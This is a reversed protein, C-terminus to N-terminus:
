VSYPLPLLKLTVGGPSKWHVDETRASAIQIVALVDYGGDPSAAANVIVGNAQGQADGSSLEEGSQPSTESLINAIYMRRKLTGLHQTRAIVEQGPYCGKNFSVAGIAEMNLMQPVFQEQTAPTIVPIGNRINLWDWCQYGAPTASQRLKGWLVPAQEATCVIQFRNPSLRILTASPTHAAGLVQQPIASFNQKALTEANNGALGLSILTDSANSIKVKSRLVFKALRRHISERLNDHLQAFYGEASQWLLLSALVRGKPTCYSSYQVTATTLKQVDSSLQSHLFSRCDEGSFYLLGFHSLDCLVTGTQAARLEARPDGFHSVVHNEIRAGASQLYQQWDAHM